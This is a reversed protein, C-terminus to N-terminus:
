ATEEPPFYLVTVPLSLWNDLYGETDNITWWRRNSRANPEYVAQAVDAQDDIVVTGVPLAAVQELTTLIKM